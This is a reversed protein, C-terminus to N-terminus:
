SHDTPRKATAPRTDVRPTPAPRDIARPMGSLRARNWDNGRHDGYALASAVPDLCAHNLLDLLNSPDLGHVSAGEGITEFRRQHCDVCDFGLGRFVDRTQPWRDLVTEIRMNCSILREM